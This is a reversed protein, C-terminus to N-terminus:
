LSILDKIIIEIKNSELSIIQKVTEYIYKPRDYTPIWISLIINNM